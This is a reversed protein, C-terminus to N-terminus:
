TSNPHFMPTKFKITPATTPYDSPFEIHLVFTGGEWVTEEPGCIIAQWNFLKGQIPIAAIGNPASKEM